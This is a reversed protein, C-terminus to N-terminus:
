VKKNDDYRSLTMRLNKDTELMLVKREEKTLSKWSEPKENETDPSGDGLSGWKDTNIDIFESLWRVMRWREELAKQKEKREFKEAERILLKAEEADKEKRWLRKRLKEKELLERM